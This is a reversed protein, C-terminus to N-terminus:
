ITAAERAEKHTRVFCPCLGSLEIEGVPQTNQSNGGGRGRSKTYLGSSRATWELSPSQPTATPICAPRRYLHARYSAETHRQVSGEPPGQNSELFKYNSDDLM